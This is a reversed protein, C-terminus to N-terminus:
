QNLLYDEFMEKVMEETAQRDYILYDLGGIRENHGTITNTNMNEVDIRKAAGVGKLMTSIPINTEVYDFYTEILKPLKLINKPKLTQKILEKMFYQQAKIRGLDGERYGSRYRLFDHANDGDLIQLGKDININLPPDATPDNYRMRQPVDIEVGGIAEVIGKVARYDVKVFYDLDINLFERVTAMTLSSGGYAHAHNLKDERGKVYVRTDRPLSLLDIKGTEFNVKMLMMTDTRTGKSQKVDKSDVGMMLFLIEDKVKVSIEEEGNIAENDIGDDSAAVTDKDLYKSWLTSYLLSFTILSIIFTLLFRKKM